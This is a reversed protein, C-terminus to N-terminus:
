QANNQKRHKKPSTKLAIPQRPEYKAEKIEGLPSVKYKKFVKLNQISGRGVVEKEIAESFLKKQNENIKTIDNCHHRVKIRGDSADLSVFYALEPKEMDSKQVEILDDKFLSFCFEYCSDMELWDKIVKSKTDKGSVVAKNPLIGLAFDMTYIPVAYFRRSQKHKFIDVRVMPGNAVIKTGIQRIKGLSLARQVGEKGGYTESLKKDDISYFTEEHLAGRARKRPPRSVFIQGVKALVQERFGRFPEFFARQTKFEEKALEKAYFRAKLSEQNQRFQSFRQIMAANIYAIIIADVAHHTHEYRNKSGLGWFHRMTATLMGKVAEVHIKSDKEGAILATNEHSDLPLFKLYEKTYNAILRAIYGSDVINRSKFGAERDGFGKDLIRKAKKKPYGSRLALSEIEGWKQSDGGFAEYPTKNGKNQNENTFVLVKNMYSDDSSRSYPLIHDIELAGQEKLNALTIKRGSYVCIENQERFLRLKLINGESLTLGLKECEQMAQVRAKYNSEIEKKYKEREQFNKGVDRTLEIHIKHVSGYKAILANLIKRYEAIARHVVPNTLEDAYISECFPPLFKSKKDNHRAKLGALKCAEDYRMGERMFPLIESLAKLSLNIHHSFNLASLQTIQEQSFKGYGHLKQALKEEDKILTMDRAISDALARDEAIESLIECFKKLNKHEIFKKTEPNSTKQKHTSDGSTNKSKRAMYDVEKFRIREDIHLIKRLQAFSLSGKECVAKFVSDLMQEYQGKSYVEGSEKSIYTLVNITKSLTIFEVASLSCKLARFEDPYFTCKGVLHSFDKLPRQYFAIKLIKDQFEQTIPFGFGKQYEFICRLERQLDEQLICNTYEGGKNRIPKLVRVKSQTYHENTSLGQPNKIVECFEKYFYEGVTRYRAIASANTALASLIKGQERKSEESKTIKANKNGYGRHKAIHLVVRVLEEKSLLRQLAEYRLVYPNNLNKGMFAKPLEGDAAIYDEYCLDWEKALLRKLTELRGKRRALRRRVSRAERRPMALSDGTKPNEAKTFIRVGCDKLEGNEVFAWGISAIGIDFGLIKM